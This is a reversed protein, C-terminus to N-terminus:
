LSWLKDLMRIHRSIQEEDSITNDFQNGEYESAIYGNYGEERMIQVFRPYDVGKCELRENIYWFKGHLYKAHRIMNRFGEYDPQTRYYIQGMHSDRPISFVRARCLEADIEDGGESLLQRILEEEPPETTAYLDNIKLLLEKHCVDDPIRNLVTEPAGSCFASFDPVVGIADSNKREFLEYYEQFIPTSPSWPGHLEIALHLGLEQAYPLLKEMTSPLLADQSRVIKCGLKKAVEM